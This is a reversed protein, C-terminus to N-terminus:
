GRPLHFRYVDYDLATAWREGAERLESLSTVIM